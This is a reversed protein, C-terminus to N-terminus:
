ENKLGGASRVGALADPAIDALVELFDKAVLRKARDVFLPIPSSPENRRFYDAVADLARIADQRSAIAGGFGAQGGAGDGAPGGNAGAGEGRLELQERFLKALKAVQTTLPGFDPAVDPGGESRMRADMANLAQIADAVSRELQKLDDLPMEAFAARIAAEDPKAELPGPPTQGRALEVDRLSYRGHQRSSVLPMRWIRDVVAMPDAFCNLANRRAIADEDLLPYVNPWFGDLWQSAATLAQSFAPLGDTRLVATALYALLRLDKSKGIGDIADTRIRDWEIPPKAKAAEKDGDDDDPAAEPSRAQGFLRLADFTSLVGSADLDQGCPQEGAIPELLARADWAASM